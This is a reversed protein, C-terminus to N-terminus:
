NKRFEEEPFSEEVQKRTTKRPVIRQVKIDSDAPQATIYCTTETMEKCTYTVTRGGSIVNTWTDNMTKAELKDPHNLSPNTTSDM